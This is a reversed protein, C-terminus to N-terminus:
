REVVEVYLEVRWALVGLGIVLVWAPNTPNYLGVIFGLAIIAVAIFRWWVDLCRVILAQWWTM